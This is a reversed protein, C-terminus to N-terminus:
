DQMTWGGRRRDTPYRNKLGLKTIPAAAARDVRLDRLDVDHPGTVRLTASILRGSIEGGAAQGAVRARLSTDPAADFGAAMAATDDPNNLINGLARCSRGVAHAHIAYMRRGNRAVRRGKADTVAVPHWKIDATSACMATIAADVNNGARLRAVALDRLRNDSRRQSLAADHRHVLGIGRAGVAIDSTAVAAGLAGTRTGRALTSFTM